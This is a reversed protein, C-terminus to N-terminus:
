DPYYDVMQPARRKRRPKAPPPGIRRGEIWKELDAALVIVRPRRSLPDAVNVAALEGNQIMRRVAPRGRRIARAIESVTYGPRLDTAM